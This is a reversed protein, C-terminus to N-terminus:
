GGLFASCSLQGVTLLLVLFGIIRQLPKPM